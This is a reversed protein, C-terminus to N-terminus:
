QRNGPAAEPAAPWATAALPAAYPRPGSLLRAARRGLRISPVEVGRHMLDACALSLPIVAPITVWLPVVGYTVHVAAILLPVHILYLSYSVRGLWVLPAASLLRDARASGVTMAILTVAGAGWIFDYYHSVTPGPSQTLAVAGIWLLAAQWRALRAVWRQIAEINAAIVIGAVFLVVFRGTDVLSMAISRAEAGALAATCAVSFVLSALLTPAPWRRTLVLLLPFVLSIRLEHVLSWMVRDLTMDPNLGTMMLNRAGYGASLPQDWLVENFAKGLAPIPEPHIAAYLTASVLIAFAFPPYIRFVRKTAFEAYSVPGNRSRLFPLALVFGSLTFFLVVAPPGSSVLVRLPTFKLWSWPDLWTALSLPNGREAFDPSVQACHFTLVLFAAIGRLADLSDWRRDTGGGPIRAPNAM